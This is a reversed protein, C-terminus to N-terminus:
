FHRKQAEKAYQLTNVTQPSSPSPSTSLTVYVGKEREQELKSYINNRNSDVSRPAACKAQKGDMRVSRLTM